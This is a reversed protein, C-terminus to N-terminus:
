SMWIVIMYNLHTNHFGLGAATGPLRLLCYAAACKISDHHIMHVVLCITLYLAYKFRITWHGALIMLGAIQLKSDIYSSLSFKKGSKYM